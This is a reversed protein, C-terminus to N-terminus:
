NAVGDMTATTSNLIDEVGGVMKEAVGGTEATRSNALCATCSPYAILVHARAILAHTYDGARSIM